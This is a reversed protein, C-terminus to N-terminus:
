IKVFLVEALNLEEIVEFPKVVGDFQAFDTADPKVNKFTSCLFM